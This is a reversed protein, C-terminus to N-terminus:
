NAVFLLDSKFGHATVLAGGSCYVAIAAAGDTNVARSKLKDAFRFHGNHCVTVHLKEISDIERASLFTKMLTVSRQVNNLVSMVFITLCMSLYISLYVFQFASLCLSCCVSLCVSFSLCVLLCELLDMSKCQSLLDFPCASLCVSVYLFLPASM